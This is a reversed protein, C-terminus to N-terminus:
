GSINTSHSDGWRREASIPINKLILIVEEEELKDNRDADFCRFAILLKQQLTGMFAKLFFTVFEDHDIREDGNANIQHLIRQGIIEPM